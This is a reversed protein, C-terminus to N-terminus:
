RMGCINVNKDFEWYAEPFPCGTVCCINHVFHWIEEKMHGTRRWREIPSQWEAGAYVPNLYWNNFSAFDEPENPVEATQFDNKRHPYHNGYSPNSQLNNNAVWRLFPNMAQDSDEENIPYQSVPSDVGNNLPWIQNYGNGGNKTERKLTSYPSYVKCMDLFNNLIRKHDCDPHCHSSQIVGIVLILYVLSFLRTRM